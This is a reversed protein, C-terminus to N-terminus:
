FPFSVKIGGEILASNEIREQYDFVPEIKFNEFDIVKSIKLKTLSPEKGEMIFDFTLGTNTELLCMQYLYKPDSRNKNPLGCYFYFYSKFNLIENFRINLNIEKNEGETTLSYTLNTDLWNFNKRIGIDYQYLSIKGYLGNDSQVSIGDTSFDLKGQCINTM